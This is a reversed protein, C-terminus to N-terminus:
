DGNRLKRIYENELENFTDSHIMKDAMQYIRKFEPDDVDEGLIEIFDHTVALTLSIDEDEMLKKYQRYLDMYAM